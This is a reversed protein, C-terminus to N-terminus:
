LTSMTVRILYGHFHFFVKWTIRVDMAILIPICQFTDTMYSDTKQRM